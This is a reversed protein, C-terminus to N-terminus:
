FPLASLNTGALVQRLRNAPFCMTFVSGQGLRSAIRLEADHRQLVHKVIALGLGTGGTERFRSRDVRYFRETLRPLHEAAIGPGTDSVSFEARGQKLMQWVVRVEGGAPTYRIANNVLNSMASLLEHASGAIELAPVDSFFLQHVVEGSSGLTASLALADNKLQQMLGPLAVWDSRGPLSMGEIRSLTLLDNVLAQMRISQEAMLGLYREREKENLPLTQLTEVFGSLVTLPTRIEHTVNAVFDRRMAEAQQLATVDRSLLLRRSQGYAHLQVSLIVPRATTSYRGPLTVEGQEEAHAYYASFGPDRVLNVFHQLLDRPDELGFHAAATQNFWDICGREDLLVVGNPSAQLAALFEQLRQDSDSVLRERSRLSRRLRVVQQGWWTNAPFDLTADDSKLWTQFRAARYLDIVVWLLGGAAGGLLAGLLALDDMLLGYGLGAAALQCFVFSTFRWLM